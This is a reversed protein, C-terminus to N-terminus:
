DRSSVTQRANPSSLSFSQIRAPDLPAVTTLRRGHHYSSTPSPSTSRRGPTLRLTFGAQYSIGDFFRDTRLGLKYHQGDGCVRLRVGTCGGLAYDAEPSRISAFGGGNDLSVVGRFRLGGGDIFEPRSLSCGGMIRDDIARWGQVEASQAFPLIIRKDPMPFRWTRCSIRQCTGHDFRPLETLLLPRATVYDPLELLRTCHHNLSGTSPVRTASTPRSLHLPLLTRPQLDAALQNVDTTCLHRSARAKQLDEALFTCECCLLSVDALLGQLRQRNRASFGIDTVYGISAAPSRGCSGTSRQMM